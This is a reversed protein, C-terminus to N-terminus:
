IDEVTNCIVNAGKDLFDALSTLCLDKSLNSFM